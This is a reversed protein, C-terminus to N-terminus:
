EELSQLRWGPLLEGSETLPPEIVIPENFDYFRLDLGVEGDDASIIRKEQRVLYDDKGIWLEITTSFAISRVEELMREKAEDSLPPLGRQQRASWSEILGQEYDLTGRYHLCLTGDVTEDPFKKVDTLSSLMILTYERNLMSSYSNVMMSAGISPFTNKSYQEDGIFIYELNDEDATQKWHYRDPAVFELEMRVVSTEEDTNVTGELSIRYSQLSAIAAQAKALVSQPGPFSGWPQWTMLVALIVVVPVAVLAPRLWKQSSRRTDVERIESMTAEKIDPLPPTVRLSLLQEGIKTYDALIARCDACSTLHEDLFDRQTGALEGDAYASLLEELDKCNM